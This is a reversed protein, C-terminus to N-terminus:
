FEAEIVKMDADSSAGSVAEIDLLISEDDTAINDANQANQKQMAENQAQVVSAAQQAKMDEEKMNKIRGFGLVAIISAILLLVIVALISTRHGASQLPAQYMSNMQNNVIPDM